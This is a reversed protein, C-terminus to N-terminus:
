VPLWMRLCLKAMYSPTGWWPRDSSVGRPLAAAGPGPCLCPGVLSLLHGWFFLQGTESLAACCHAGAAM